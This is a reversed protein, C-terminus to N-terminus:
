KNLLQSELHHDILKKYLEDMTNERSQDTSVTILNQEDIETPSQYSQALTDFDELRADSIVDEEDKRASLRDIITQDSALAEIFLYHAANKELFDILKYRIASDSFTADLIVSKGTKITDLASSMLEMYTKDTTETNYLTERRPRPTRQGIPLGALSKRIKDSSFCDIKLQGSLFDALTSKGTGIRGMFIIALPKSGLLAYCLSLKFYRKALDSSKKRSETPVEDEASQFSKVKGKVYARYCKYFDIIQLLGEDNLRKAMQEMFYRELQWCNNFDLDMALYALDVALDGYRFRENFEICDYIQVKEPTIHIHELHLDGHGEVIRGSEVRKQFLPKQRQFYQNAFHRIAQFSGRDITKGIFQKTQNFNEETNVKIADIEGWKNLDPNSEQSLYFDALTEAIRDLHERTLKNEVVIRHLFFEDPMRRMKVAYEVIDESALDDVFDFIGGQTRVFGVVGLYIDDSLRRNLDVERDCLIKRKQLSSYDLFGLDVPKKLKYVFSDTPVCSFHTDSYTGCKESQSSLIRM